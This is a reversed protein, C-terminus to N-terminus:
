FDLPLRLYQSFVRDRHEILGPSLAKRLAPDRLTYAQRLGEPMPCDVADLPQLMNSFAAWYVDALSLANGVLYASGNAQQQQWVGSLWLLLKALRAPAQAAAEADYGYKSGLRGVAARSAEHAIAEHLSCLRRLWGIGNEGAMARTLGWVRCALEPDDPILPKEPNLREALWAIQEWTTRPTEDNWIAVPASSQGTWERLGPNEGGPLQLVATFPIGKYHFVAKAAEGWPGPVGASLILRLDSLTKAAELSVYEM